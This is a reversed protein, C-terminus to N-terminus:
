ATVTRRASRTATSEMTDMLAGLTVDEMETVIWVLVAHAHITVGHDMCEMNVHMVTVLFKTVAKKLADMQASRMVHVETIDQNATWAFDLNSVM